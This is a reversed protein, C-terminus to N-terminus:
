GPRWHDWPRLAKGDQSGYLTDEFPQKERNLIRRLPAQRFREGREQCRM